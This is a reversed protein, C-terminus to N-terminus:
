ILRATLAAMRHGYLACAQVEGAVQSYTAMDGGGGRARRTTELSGAGDTALNGTLKAGAPNGIEEDRFPTLAGAATHYVSHWRPVGGQCCDAFNAFIRPSSHFTACPRYGALYLM